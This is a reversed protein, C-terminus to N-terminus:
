KKIAIGINRNHKSDVEKRPLFAFRSKFGAGIGDPDSSLDRVRQIFRECVWSGAVVFSLYNLRIKSPAATGLKRCLNVTGSSFFVNRWFTLRKWRVGDCLKERRLEDEDEDM